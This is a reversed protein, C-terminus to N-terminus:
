GLIIKKHISIGKGVPYFGTVLGPISPPKLDWSTFSVLYFIVHVAAENYKCM